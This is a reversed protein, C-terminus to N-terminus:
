YDYDLYNLFEVMGTLDFVSVVVVLRLFFDDVAATFYYAVLAAGVIILEATCFLAADM